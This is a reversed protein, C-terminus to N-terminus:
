LKIKYNKVESSKKKTAIELRYRELLECLTTRSAEEYSTMIGQDIKAETERAYKEADKKLVFSKVISKALKKRIHVQWKGYHKRISAV